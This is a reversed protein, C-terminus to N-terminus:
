PLRQRLEQRLEKIEASIADLEKELASHEASLKTQVEGLYEAINVNLRHLAILIIIELGIIAFVITQM